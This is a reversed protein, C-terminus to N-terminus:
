SKCVSFTNRQKSSSAKSVAAEVLKKGGKAGLPKKDFFFM